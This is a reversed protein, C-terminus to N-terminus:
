GLFQQEKLYEITKLRTSPSRATLFIMKCKNNKLNEMFEMLNEYDLVIPNELDQNKYDFTMLTEDIDFVVLSNSILEIRSFSNIKRKIINM